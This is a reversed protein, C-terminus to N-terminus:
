ECRVITTRVCTHTHTHVLLLGRGAEHFDWFPLYLNETNECSGCAMTYRGHDLYVRLGVVM